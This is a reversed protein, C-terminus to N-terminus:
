RCSRTENTLPSATCLSGAGRVCQFSQGSSGCAPVSGQWRRSTSCSGSTCGSTDGTRGNYEGTVSEDCDYDYDLSIPLGDDVPEDFFMTQGPYADPDGDQCDGGDPVYGTPATCASMTSSDRGFGDDDADRYFTILVGEDTSGDCDQNLGDCVETGGQFCSACDDDCDTDNTVWDRGSPCGSPACAMCEDSPDGQGDGDSDGYFTELLGEDSTGDCDDDVGNCSETTMMVGGECVLVGSTCTEVGMSCAGTDSGCAAGGDPNGEDIMGDCDDDVNNCVEDMPGVAGECAGLMGDVCAQTGEECRGTSEGCVVPVGDACSCGEDVTGDCDEDEVGECAEEAPATEGECTGWDGDVCAQTGAVCLGANTGCAQTLEEDTMGDCDDDVGNCTEPDDCTPAGGDAVPVCGPGEEMFGEPCGTSDDDGCAILALSCCAFFALQLRPMM